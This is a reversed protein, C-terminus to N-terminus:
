INLSHKKCWPYYVTSMYHITLIWWKRYMNIHRLICRPAMVSNFMCPMKRITSVEPISYNYWTINHLKEKFFKSKIKIKMYKWRTFKLVVRVHMGGTFNLSSFISIACYRPHTNITDSIPTCRTPILRLATVSVYGKVNRRRELDVNCLARVM